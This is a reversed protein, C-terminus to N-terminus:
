QQAPFFITYTKGNKVQLSKGRLWPNLWRLMKYDSGNEKAFATLNPISRSIKVERLSIPNYRESLPVLFGLSDANTLLYKFALIRFIYRQTEEPLILDYYNKTQQYAANQQYRGMGCNYAAAAATWSGFRQYADKLYVCAAETAKTVNYREDVTESIELAYGPATGKMFQWFGVAGSKSIANSLNSEAICMYKFDEPIGRSKLTKEIMPFYRNSLKLMYLITHPAFFNILIERDLQEKVEWRELPAKEGAFDITAPLPPAVLSSTQNAKLTNVNGPSTDQFSSLLLLSLATLMGSLFILVRSTFIKKKM